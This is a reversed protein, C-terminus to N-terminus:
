NSENLFDTFITTNILQTTEETNINEQTQSFKNIEKELSKTSINNNNNNSTSKATKCSCYKNIFYKRIIEKSEILNIKLINLNHGDDFSFSEEYKVNHNLTSLTFIEFPDFKSKFQFSPNLRNYKTDVDVSKVGSLGSIEKDKNKDIIRKSVGIYNNNILIHETGVALKKQDGVKDEIILQLKNDKKNIRKLECYNLIELQKSYKHKLESLELLMINNIDIHNINAYIKSSTDFSLNSQKM